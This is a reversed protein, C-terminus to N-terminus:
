IKTAAMLRSNKKLKVIKITIEYENENENEVVLMDIGTKRARNVTEKITNLFIRADRIIMSVNQGSPSPKVERPINNLRAKEVLDETEKVNLEREYITRIIEKQMEGSNLRLLARAHRETITGTIILNRIEPSIKLLRLKNAIASQSKGVRQALEEQTLGFRNLLTSYAIAEEFYNLEKRQLNEILTVAAMSEDNIEMVIAPIHQQGNMKCARYRREGAILQYGEKNKRVIVPQIVGFNSISKALEKLEMEDFEKRPQFPNPSIEQ